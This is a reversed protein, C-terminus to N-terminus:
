APGTKDVSSDSKGKRGRLEAFKAWIGAKQLLSKVTETPQAGTLLWYLARDPNSFVPAPTAARPDYHGLEEIAAGDRPKSSHMVVIRYHPDKKAGVRRLRIKVPM